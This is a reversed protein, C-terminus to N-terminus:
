TEHSGPAFLKPRKGFGFSYKTQGYNLTTLGAPRCNAPLVVPVSGKEIEVDAVQLRDRLGCSRPFGASRGCSFSLSPRHRIFLRRAQTRVTFRYVIVVEM